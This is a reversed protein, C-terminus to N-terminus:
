EGVKGQYPTAAGVGLKIGEMKKAACDLCVRSKTEVQRGKSTVAKSVLVEDSLEQPTKWLSCMPCPVQKIGAKRQVEAWEWWATYGKPPLDGPKFDPVVSLHVLRGIM